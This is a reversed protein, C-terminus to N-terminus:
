RRDLSRCEIGIKGKSRERLVSDDAIFKVFAVPDSAWVGSGAPSKLREIKELSAAHLVLRPTSRAQIPLCIKNGRRADVVEHSWRVQGISQMTVM